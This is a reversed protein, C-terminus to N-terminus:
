PHVQCPADDEGLFYDIDPRRQDFEGTEVGEVFLEGLFNSRAVWRM